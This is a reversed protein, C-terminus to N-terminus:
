VSMQHRRRHAHWTKNALIDIRFTHACIEHFFLLLLLLVCYHNYSHRSFSVVTIYLINRYKKMSNNNNNDYIHKNSIAAFSANFDYISGGTVCLSQENYYIQLCTSLYRLFGFYCIPSHRIHYTHTNICLFLLLRRRRRHCGNYM